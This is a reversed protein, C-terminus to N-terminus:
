KVVPKQKDKDYTIKIPKTPPEKVMKWIARQADNTPPPAWGEVCAGDYAMYEKPKFGLQALYQAYASVKDFPIQEKLQDLGRVTASNMPNGPFQSAGGGCLLNFCKIIEKRARPAFFKTKAREAPLDDVLHSLNVVGWRDEPAILLTPANPEDKVVIVIESGVSKLLNKPDSTQSKVSRINIDTTLDIIRAVADLNTQALKSQVNVIAVSKLGTGPRILEDTHDPLKAALALVLAISITKKM